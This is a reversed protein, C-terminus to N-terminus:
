VGPAKGWRKLADALFAALEESSLANLDISGAWDRECLEMWANGLVATIAAAVSANIVSGAGPIVKMIAAAITRGAATAAIQALATFVVQASVAVDFITAIRRMMGAQVALIAPADAVPIPTAAVAAASAAAVGVVQHASKRKLAKDIRQATALAARVGEPVALETARLLELLGFAETNSFEDPIASVPIPEGQFIPLDRRRLHDLFEVVDSPYGAGQRWPTQTLVLLVPLDMESLTNLLREQADDFRRDSAKICFWVAHIANAPDDTLREEYIHVFDKLFGAMEEFSESGRFDYLGLTGAENVRLRVGQTVPKGIGTEAVQDGFVANILTSKGVGTGGLIALNFREPMASQWGEHAAADFHDTM